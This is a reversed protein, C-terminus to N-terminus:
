LFSAKHAMNTSLALFPFFGTFTSDFNSQTHSSRRFISM